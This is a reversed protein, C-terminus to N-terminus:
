FQKHFHSTLLISLPFITFNNYSQVASLLLSKTETESRLELVFLKVITASFLRSAFVFSFSHLQSFHSQVWYCFNPNQLESRLDHALPVKLITSSFPLYSTFVFPFSHIQLFFFHSQVCSCVNPNQPELRLDHSFPIKLITSLFSFIFYLRFSFQSSTVSTLSSLRFCSGLVTLVSQFRWGHYKGVCRFPFRHVQSFIFFPQLFVVCEIVKGSGFTFWSCLFLNQVSAM